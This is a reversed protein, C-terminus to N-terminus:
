LGKFVPDRKERNAAIGEAADQSLFLQQQLERELALAESFPLEAGTQASAASTSSLPASAIVSLRLSKPYRKM